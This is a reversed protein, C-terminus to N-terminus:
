EKGKERCSKLNEFCRICNEGNCISSVLIDDNKISIECMSPLNCVVSSKLFECNMDKCYGNCHELNCIHKIKERTKNDLVNTDFCCVMFAENNEKCFLDVKKCLDTIELSDTTCIESYCLLIKTQLNKKKTQFNNKLRKPNLDLKEFNRFNELSLDFIKFFENKFYLSLDGSFKKPSDRWISMANSNNDGM